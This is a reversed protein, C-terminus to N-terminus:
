YNPDDNNDDDLTMQDEDINRENLSVPLDELDKEKQESDEQDEDDKEDILDGGRRQLSKFSEQFENDNVKDSNENLDRKKLIVNANDSKSIKELVTGAQIDRDQDNRKFLIPNIQSEYSNRNLGETPQQASNIIQKLFQPLFDLYKANRNSEPVIKKSQQPEINFKLHVIKYQLGNDAEVLNDIRPEMSSQYQTNPLPGFSMLMMKLLNNRRLQQM